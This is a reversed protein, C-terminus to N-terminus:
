ICKPQVIHRLRNVFCAWTVHIHGQLVGVYKFQIYYGIRLFPEPIVSRKHTSGKIGQAWLYNSVYGSM